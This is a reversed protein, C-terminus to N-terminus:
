QTKVESSLGMANILSQTLQMIKLHAIKDKKIMKPIDQHQGSQVRRIAERVTLIPFIAGAPLMNQLSKYVEKEITRIPQNQRVGHVRNPIIGLSILRPNIKKVVTILDTLRRLADMSFYELEIPCVTFESVSLTAIVRQSYHGPSDMLILKYSGELSKIIDSLRTYLDQNMLDMDMLDQHGCLIDLHKSLTYPSPPQNPQVLPLYISHAEAEIKRNALLSFSTNQQDDMDIVLVRNQMKAIYSGLLVTLTSKGVGGKTNVISLVTM